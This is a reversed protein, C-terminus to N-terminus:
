FYSESTKATSKQCNKTLKTDIYQTM